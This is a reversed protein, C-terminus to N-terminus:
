GRLPEHVRRGRAGGAGLRSARYWCWGGILRMRWSQFRQWCFVLRSPLTGGADRLQSPVMSVQINAPSDGRSQCACIFTLTQMEHQTWTGDSLLWYWSIWKAQLSEARIGPFQPLISQFHSHPVPMLLVAEKAWLVSLSFSDGQLKLHSERYSSTDSKDPCRKEGKKKLGYVLGPHNPPTPVSYRWKVKQSVFAPFLM